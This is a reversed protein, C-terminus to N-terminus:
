FTHGEEIEWINVRVSGGSYSRYELRIADDYNLVRLFHTWVPVEVGFFACLDAPTGPYDENYCHFVGDEMIRFHYEGCMNLQESTM